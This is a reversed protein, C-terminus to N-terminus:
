CTRTNPLLYHDVWARVHRLLRTELRYVRGRGERHQTVLGSHSLVRLHFSLTTSSLALESAIAAPPHDQRRLLGLIRRRTPDAIARFVTESAIPRSM